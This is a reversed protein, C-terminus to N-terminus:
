SDRSVMTSTSSFNITPSLLYTKVRRVFRASEICICVHGGQKLFSEKSLLSPMVIRLDRVMIENRLRGFFIGDDFTAAGLFKKLNRSVKEGIAMDVGDANDFAALRKATGQKKYPTTPGSRTKGLMQALRSGYEFFLYVFFSRLTFSRVAVIRHM